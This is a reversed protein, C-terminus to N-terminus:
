FWENLVVTLTMYAIPMMLVALLAVAYWPAGIAIMTIIGSALILTMMLFLISTM